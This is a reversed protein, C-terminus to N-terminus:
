YKILAYKGTDNRRILGKLELATLINICAASSLPNTRPLKVIINDPSAPESNIYQLVLKEHTTLKQGSTEVPQLAIGLDQLIGKADVTLTAGQAILENPGQSYLNFISGPTAYINRNEDRAYRATMLAGSKAASEVVLVGRCLGAIIRNRALFSFPVTPSKPPRESIICGTEIIKRALQYHSQPYISNDDVGGALVAVTPGNNLLASKHAAADIGFALGSVVTVGAISLETVIRATAALGYNTAKRSGVVAICNNANATSIKGRCYIIPPPVAIHSLLTPFHPEGYSYAQIKLHKLKQMELSVTKELMPQRCHNLLASVTKQALGARLLQKPEAHLIKRFEEFSNKIKWLNQPGLEPLLNLYHLFSLDEM